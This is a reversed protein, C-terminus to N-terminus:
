SGGQVARDVPGFRGADCKKSAVFLLGAAREIKGAKVLKQNVTVGVLCGCTGNAEDPEFPPGCYWKLRKRRLLTFERKTAHPCTDCRGARDVLDDEGAVDGSKIADHYKSAGEIALGLHRARLKGTLAMRALQPMGMRALRITEAVSM